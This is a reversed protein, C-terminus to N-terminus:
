LVKHFIPNDFTDRRPKNVRFQIGSKSMFVKVMSATATMLGLFKISICKRKRKRERDRKERRNKVSHSNVITAVQDNLGCGFKVLSSVLARGFVQGDCPIGSRDTKPNM